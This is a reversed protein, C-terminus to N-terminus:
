RSADALRSIIVSISASSARKGAGYAQGAQHAQHAQYARGGPARSGASGDLRRGARNRRRDHRDATM